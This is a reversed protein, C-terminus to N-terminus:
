QRSPARAFKQIPRSVLSLAAIKKKFVIHRFMAQTIRITLLLQGVAVDVTFEVWGSVSKQVDQKAQPIPVELFTFSPFRNVNTYNLNSSGQTELCVAYDTQASINQIRSLRLNLV